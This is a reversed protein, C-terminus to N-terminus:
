AASLDAVRTGCSRVDYGLSTLERRTPAATMVDLFRRIRADDLLAAPIVLDYREEALPVFNLGFVIAADRTAVGVDAAGISVAQAVELHGAALLQAQTAPKEAIGAARLERDLLRRAGSGAERSVIRLGRRGLDAAGRLHKPNGRATVLGEEWRALTVVVVPETGAHRRVDPLNAEGSRADVLHVGAVHTHRKALSELARTSSTAMWLFRGAGKRVNLRDALLGLAAACGM